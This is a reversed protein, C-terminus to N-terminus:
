LLDTLWPIKQLAWAAALSSPYACVFLILYDSLVGVRRQVRDRRLSAYVAKRAEESLGTRRSSTSAGGGASTASEGSGCTTTTAHRPLFSAPADLDDHQKQEKHGGYWKFLLWEDNLEYRTFSADYFRSKAETVPDRLHRPDEQSAASM